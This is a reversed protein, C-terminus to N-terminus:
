HKYISLFYILAIVFSAISCMGLVVLIVIQTVTMGLFRNTKIKVPLKIQSQINSSLNVESQIQAEQLKQQEIDSQRIKEVLRRIRPEEYLEINKTKAYDIAPQTFGSPAWYHGKAAHQRRIVKEFYILETKDVRNRLQKCQVIEPLGENNIMWVDVGGDTTSHAGTHIVNKYGLRNFINAALLELERPRLEDSREIPLGTAFQMSAKQNQSPRNLFYEIIGVIGTEQRRYHRRPMTIKEWLLDCTM